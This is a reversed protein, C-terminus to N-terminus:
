LFIDVGSAALEESVDENPVAEFLAQDWIEFKDLIGVLVIEKKLAGERILLQPIRARGQADPVIEEAMGILKTKFNSLKQSPTKISCLQEVTHEWTAPLYATVRGYLSTLWFAGREKLTGEGTAGAIVELFRPPLLIRGKSDIARYYTGM